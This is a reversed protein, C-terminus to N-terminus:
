CQVLERKYNSSLLDITEGNDFEILNENKTILRVRESNVLCARHSQLLTGNAMEKLETLSKNVRYTTYDTKIICKRDVSDRTIYLIDKVPITYQTSADNFRIICKYNLVELAKEIASKLSEEFDNFKCIFTLFMLQEKLVISGLENHATVFIIVSDVDMKRIKRAVDIGSASKTEIDLIYIKSTKIKAVEEFFHDDYDFFSHTKYEVNNRMMVSNICQEIIEVIKQNDDVVVFNKVNDM